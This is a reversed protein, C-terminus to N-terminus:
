VIAYVKPHLQTHKKTQSLLRSTLTHQHAPGRCTKTSFAPFHKQLASCKLKAKSIILLLLSSSTPIADYGPSPCPLWSSNAAVFAHHFLHGHTDKHLHQVPVHANYQQCQQVSTHTTHLHPTPHDMENGLPLHHAASTPTSELISSILLIYHL